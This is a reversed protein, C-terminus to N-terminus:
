QVEERISKIWDNYSILNVVKHNNQTWITFFPRM